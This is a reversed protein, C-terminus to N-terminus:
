EIMFIMIRVEARSLAMRSWQRGLETLYYKYCKGVKKIIGHARLRNILRTVQNTFKQTFYQRLQKNTFGSIAFEGQSWHLPIAGSPLTQLVFQDGINL